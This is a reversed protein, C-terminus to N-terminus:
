ELDDGAGLLQFLLQLGVKLERKRYRLEGHDEFYLVTGEQQLFIGHGAWLPRDRKGSFLSCHSNKDGEGNGGDECAVRM